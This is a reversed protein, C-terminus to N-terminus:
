QNIQQKYAIVKTIIEQKSDTVVIKKGNVLSIITDPTEEITEILEANLVIERGNIRKLVIM